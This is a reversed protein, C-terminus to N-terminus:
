LSGLAEERMTCHGRLVYNITNLYRTRLTRFVCKSVNLHRWNRGATFVATPISASWFYRARQASMLVQTPHGTDVYFEPTPRQVGLVPSISSGRLENALWNFQVSANWTRHSLGYRM